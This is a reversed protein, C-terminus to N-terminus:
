RLQAVADVARDVWRSEGEGLPPDRDLPTDLGSPERGRVRLHVSHLRGARGETGFFLSWLDPGVARRPCPRITLGAGSPIEVAFGAVLHDVPDVWADPGGHAGTSLWRAVTTDAPVDDPLHLSLDGSQAVAEIAALPTSGSAHVCQSRRDLVPRDPAAPLPSRPPMTEPMLNGPNLINHPDFKRRLAAVIEIGLGLEAGMKPAKSRGVGHHHSLTGGAEIAADMATRWATDYRQEAAEDDDASGAFTFYISCGDPYAHSMHAMVMVHEGLAERVGDYLATFKSWPAAVEMTDVFAGMMFMPAQRYSVAYRHSLWHRAPGEGLDDGGGRKALTRAAALEDDPREDTGEFLLVLMAGGFARTGLTDVAFNLATPLRLAANAFSGFPVGSTKKKAGGSRAGKRESRRAMMSDFPDYLRCVAPRLGRQYIARITEYGHEMSPFSWAGYARRTPRPHLRLKAATIVALTGESGIILPTLDPGHRRRRLEVIEGRGDVCELSATMDEIKGYLGSMQGAGRAAIWGGVTSCLISSPFHGITYGKAQLEEELRIGQVGAEVDLYGEDPALERWRRMRKLDVVVTGGDPRVGGCVGSGAGFPVIRIGEAACFSVLEAVQETNEPWAVAAPRQEAVRGARVAIHHRPWLDRAYSIKDPSRDSTEVGVADRIARAVSVTV